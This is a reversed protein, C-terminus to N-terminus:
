DLMDSIVPGSFERSDGTVVSWRPIGFCGILSLLAERTQHKEHPHQQKSDLTEAWWVSQFCVNGQVLKNGTHRRIAIYVEQIFFVKPISDTVLCVNLALILIQMYIQMHAECQQLLNTSSQHFLTRINNDNFYIKDAKRSKEPPSSGPMISQTVSYYFLIVHLDFVHSCPTKITLLTGERSHKEEEVGGRSCGPMQVSNFCCHWINPPPSCFPTILPPRLPLCHILLVAKWPLM